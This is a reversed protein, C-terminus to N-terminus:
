VRENVLNKVLGKIYQASTVVELILAGLKLIIPIVAGGVALLLANVALAISIVGLMVAITRTGKCKYMWKFIAGFMDGYAKLALKVAELIEARGEKGWVNKWASSVVTWLASSKGVADEFARKVDKMDCSKDTFDKRFDEVMGVLFGNALGFVISTLIDYFTLHNMEQQAVGNEPDEDGAVKAEPDDDDVTEMVIGVGEGMVSNLNNVSPDSPNMKEVVKGAVKKAARGLAGWTAKELFAIAEQKHAKINSSSMPIKPDYRFEKMNVMDNIYPNTVFNYHTMIAEYVQLLELEPKRPHNNNKRCDLNTKYHVASQKLNKEHERAKLSCQNFQSELNKRAWSLSKARKSIIDHARAKSKLSSVKRHYGKALRHSNITNTVAICEHGVLMLLVFCAVVNKPLM